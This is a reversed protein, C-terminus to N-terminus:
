PAASREMVKVRVRKEGGEGDDTATVEVRRPAPMAAEFKVTKRDRLVVLPVAEGPAYSHLIRRAQREDTVARGGISQLVDGDQLKLRDHADVVLVGKETGFYKGLAPTLTALDLGQHTGLQTPRRRGTRQSRQVPHDAGQPDGQDDGRHKPCRQDHQAGQRHRRGHLVEHVGGLGDGTAVQRHLHVRGVVIFHALHGQAQPLHLTRQNGHDLLDRLRGPRHVVRSVLQGCAGCQMLPGEPLVIDTTSLAANCGVPCSDIYRTSM